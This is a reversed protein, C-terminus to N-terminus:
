RPQGGPAIAGSTASKFGYPVNVRFMRSRRGSSNLADVTKAFEVDGGIGFPLSAQVQTATSSHESSSSSQIEIIATFSGGTQVGYVFQDGYQEGFKVAREALFPRASDLLPPPPIIQKPDQIESHIFVYNSYSSYDNQQLFQVSASGSFFGLGVSATASM